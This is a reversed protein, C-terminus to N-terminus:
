MGQMTERKETDFIEGNLWPSRDKVTIVKELIPCVNNYQTKIM